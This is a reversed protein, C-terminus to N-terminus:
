APDTFRWTVGVPVIDKIKIVSGMGMFSFPGRDSKRVFIYVAASSLLNRISPDQLKSGAKGHWSLEDGNIRNEHDHGTRAPVGVTAFVFWAGKHFHYGTNWDGGQVEPPVAAIVYIESRTYKKDIEFGPTNPM